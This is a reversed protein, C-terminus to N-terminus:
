EKIIELSKIIWAGNKGNWYNRAWDELWKVKNNRDFTLDYRLDFVQRYFEKSGISVYHGNGYQEEDYTFRCSLDFFLDSTMGKPTEPDTIVVKMQYKM